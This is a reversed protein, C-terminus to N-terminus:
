QQPLLKEIEKKPVAGNLGAVRQGGQFLLVTPIGHVEFQEVAKSNDDAHAGAVVIDHREEAIEKVIPTFHRCSGAWDAWFYVLVPKDSGDERVVKEFDADTVTVMEPM